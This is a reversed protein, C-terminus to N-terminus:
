KQIVFDCLIKVLGVLGDSNNKGWKLVKLVNEGVAEDIQRSSTHKYVM